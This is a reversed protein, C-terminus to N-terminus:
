FSWRYSTNEENYIFLDNEKRKKEKNKWDKCIRRVRQPFPESLSHTEQHKQLCLCSKGQCHLFQLYDKSQLLSSSGQLVAPGPSCYLAAPFMKGITDQSEIWNVEMHEKSAEGSNFKDYSNLISTSIPSQEPHSYRQGLM